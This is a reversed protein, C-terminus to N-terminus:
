LGRRQEITDKRKAEFRKLDREYVKLVPDIMEIIRFSASIRREMIMKVRKMARVKVRLQYAQEQVTDQIGAAYIDLLSHQEPEPEPAEESQERIILVGIM